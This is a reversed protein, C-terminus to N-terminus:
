RRQQRARLRGYVRSFQEGLAPDPERLLIQVQEDFTALDAEIAPADETRDLLYTLRFFLMSLHRERSSFGVRLMRQWLAEYSARDPPPDATSVFSLIVECIRRRVERQNAERGSLAALEPEIADFRAVVEQWPRDIIEKTVQAIRRVVTLSGQSDPDSPEAPDPATATM